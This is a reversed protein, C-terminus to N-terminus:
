TVWLPHEFISYIHLGNEEESYYSKTAPLYLEKWGNALPQSQQEHHVGPNAPFPLTGPVPAVAAPQMCSAGHNLSNLPLESNTQNRKKEIEKVRSKWRSIEEYTGCVFFIRRNPFRGDHDRYIQAETNCEKNLECISKGRKGIIFRACEPRVSYDLILCKEDGASRNLNESM